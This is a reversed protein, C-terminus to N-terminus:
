CCTLFADLAAVSGAARAGRPYQPVNDPNIFSSVASLATSARLVFHQAPGFREHSRPIAPEEHIVFRACASDDNM